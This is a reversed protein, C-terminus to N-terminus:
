VSPLRSFWVLRSVEDLTTSISEFGDFDDSPRNMRRKRLGDKTREQSRLVENRWEDVERSALAELEFGDVALDNLGPARESEGNDRQFHSGHPSSDSSSNRRRSTRVPVASARRRRAARRRELFDEAWAEFTPAIHPEYVFKLTFHRRCPSAFLHLAHSHM